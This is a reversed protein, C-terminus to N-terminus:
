GLHDMRDGRRPKITSCGRRPSRGLLGKRGHVHRLLRDRRWPPDGIEGFHERLYPLMEELVEPALPTTANHDLYIVDLSGYATM